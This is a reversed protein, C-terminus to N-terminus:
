QTAHLEAAWDYHNAVDRNTAGPFRRQHRVQRMVQAAGTKTWADYASAVAAACGIPRLARM